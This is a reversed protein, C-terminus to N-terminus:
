QTPYATIVILVEEVFVPEVIVSWARDDLSTEVVFRGEEHNAHHGTACQLMTRLDVESFQRDIMRKLLHSSLELDWHWWDPEDM